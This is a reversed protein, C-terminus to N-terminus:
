LKGDLLSLPNRCDRVLADICSMGIEQRRQELTKCHESLQCGLYLSDMAGLLLLCRLRYHRSQVSSYFADDHPAATHHLHRGHHRSQASSYLAYIM